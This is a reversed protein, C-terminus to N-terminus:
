YALSGRIHDNNGLRYASEIVVVNGRDQEKEDVYDFAFVSEIGTSTFIMGSKVYDVWKHQIIPTGKIYYGFVNRTDVTANLIYGTDAESTGYVRNGTNLDDLCVINIGFLSMVPTTWSAIGGPLPNQYNNDFLEPRTKRIEAFVRKGDHNTYFTGGAKVPNHALREFIALITDPNVAVDNETGAVPNKIHIDPNFATTGKGASPTFIAGRAGYNYATLDNSIGDGIGDFLPPLSALTYLADVCQQSEIKLRSDLLEKWVLSILESGYADGNKQRRRDEMLKDYYSQAMAMRYPAIKKKRLISNKNTQFYNFTQEATNNWPQYEAGIKDTRAMSRFIEIDSKVPFVKAMVMKNAYWNKVDENVEASLRAVEGEEIVKNMDGVTFSHIQNLSDHGLTISESHALITM